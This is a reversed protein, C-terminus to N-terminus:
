GRIWRALMRIPRAAADIHAQGYAEPDQRALVELRGRPRSNLEILHPTHDSDLVLDLGVEVAFRGEPRQDLAATIQTCLQRVRALTQPALLAPGPGVEAGRAANAVPDTRSSRVVPTCHHWGDPTRQLLVRLARGAWGSPPPVARQLIAPELRGPVMGPLEAPLHDTAEVRSVSTGLAGYRPKLFGAGWADLCQRFRTPDTELDPMAIGADMMAQQSLVKDRCLMTFDVPNAMIRGSIGNLLGAFAESRVQSPFRDHIADIPLDTVSRWGGPVPQLGDIRGDALVCGFVVRIDEKALALAARGIPRSEPPPPTGDAPVLVGITPGTPAM